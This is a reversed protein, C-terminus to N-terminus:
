NTIDRKKNIVLSLVVLLISVVIMLPIGLGLIPEVDNLGRDYYYYMQESLEPKFFSAFNIYAIPTYIVWNLSPYFSLKDMVMLCGVFCILPIAVSIATRKTTVSLFFSAACAFLITIACILFKPVYYSFFSMTGSSIDYNPYSYDKFGAMIGNSVINIVVSIVYISLCIIILALFKSLAIKTRTKPRIYLLRITGTQFERSILGGGIIAGFVAVVLSYWLFSVVSNRAKDPQYSMDPKLEELSHEAIYLKNTAKDRKKQIGEKFKQYTKYEHKYYDNKQFEEEPVIQLYNLQDKARKKANLAVHRWDSGDNKVDNEIRYEYLEINILHYKNGNQNDKIQENYLEENKPNEVIDKELAKIQENNEDIYEYAEDINLQYFDIYDNNAVISDIRKLKTDIDELRKMVEINSLSYYEKDLRDNDMGYRFSIASIINEKPEDLHTLIFKDLIYQSKRWALEHRYDEESEIHIAVFFFSDYYERMFELRLDDTKTSATKEMDEIEMKTYKVDSYLPNTGKILHGDITIDDEHHHFHHENNNPILHKVFPFVASAVLILIMSIFLLKSALLRKIEVKINHSLGRVKLIKNM